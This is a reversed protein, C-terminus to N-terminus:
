FSCIFCATNCCYDDNCCVKDCCYVESKDGLGFVDKTLALNATDVQNSTLGGASEAFGGTYVISYGATKGAVAVLILLALLSSTVILLSRQFTYCKGIVIDHTTNHDEDPTVIKLSTNENPM